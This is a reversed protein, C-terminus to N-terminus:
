RRSICEAESPMVVDFHRRQSGFRLYSTAIVVGWAVTVGVLLRSASHRDPLDCAMRRLM